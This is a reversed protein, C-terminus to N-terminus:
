IYDKYDVKTGEKEFVLYLKNGITEGLYKGSEVNDYLKVNCNTINSYWITINDSEIVVTYGYDEKEGIFSVIGSYQIPVLYSDEVTLSIGDNFKNIKTYTLKESFASETNFLSDFPLVSGLYKTYVGKISSFSINKSLINKNIWEKSKSSYKILIITLLFMIVLIMTKVLFIKLRHHSTKSSEKNIKRKIDEINM